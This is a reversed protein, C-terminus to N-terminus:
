SARYRASAALRADNEDVLQVGRLRWAGVGVTAAVMFLLTVIDMWHFAPANPFGAPMVLWYVDLYHGLVILLSLAALWRSNEKFRRSLLLAFPFAFHVFLLLLTFVLWGNTRGEWWENESPIAAIWQIFYQTFAIYIWFVVHTLLLKGMGVYHNQSLFRGLLPETDVLRMLVVVVSLAALFGGAFVYLGFTTSVWHPTLSMMWDISAFTMTFALAILGLASLTRNAKTNALKSSSSPHLSFRRLLEAIAIWVAFYFCARVLVFAPAWWSKQHVLATNAEAADSPIAWPYLLSAWSVVPIALLVLAPTASHVIEILRLTVVPWVANSSHFVMSLALAGLVLTLLFLYATLYSWVSREADVVFGIIVLALMAVAGVAAKLAVRQADAFVFDRM